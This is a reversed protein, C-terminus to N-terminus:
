PQSFGVCSLVDPFSVCYSAFLLHEFFGGLINRAVIVSLTVLSTIPFFSEFIEFFRQM